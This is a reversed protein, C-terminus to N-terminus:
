CRPLNRYIDGLADVVDDVRPVAGDGGLDHADGGCIAVGALRADTETFLAITPTGLAAALHTLGTDIGVVAEARSLLSAVDRLTQRPPVIAAAIGEAIRRCRAEEDANGWPLVIALGTRALHLALARWSEEPWLKSERSTATVLVAFPLEPTAPTIPLPMWHWRPPGEVRHGLAGAAITRCKTVFHIDREVKHHVDHLLTTLPERITAASLGHRRGRAIRAIIAGKLQEQLDIVADYRTATVARRFARFERWTSARLLSSRWRRLAVAIVGHVDTDLAPLPAFAEEAVWDIVANPDASRIDACIALAYVVDGLSSPRVVLIRTM